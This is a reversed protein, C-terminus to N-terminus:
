DGIRPPAGAQNRALVANVRMAFDRPSFPKVIYEDAGAALGAAIDAVQAVASLLIIPIKAAAPDKRLERCV